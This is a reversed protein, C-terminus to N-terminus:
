AVWVGHESRAHELLEETTEFEEGCSCTHYAAPTQSTAM